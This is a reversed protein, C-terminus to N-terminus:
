RQVGIVARATQVSPFTYVVSLFPVSPVHSVDMNVSITARGGDEKISVGIRRADLLAYDEASRSVYDRVASERRAPDREPLAIRAAQSALQSLSNQVGYMYGVRMTGFLFFILVPALLVFELAALGRENRVFFRGRCFRGQM